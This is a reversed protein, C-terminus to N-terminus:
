FLRSFKQATTLAGVVTRFNLTCYNTLVSVHKHLFNFVVSKIEVVLSCCNAPICKMHCPYIHSGVDLLFRFLMRFKPFYFQRYMHFLSVNQKYTIFWLFVCVCVYILENM